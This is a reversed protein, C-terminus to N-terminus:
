FLLFFLSFNSILCTKNEKRFFINSTFDVGQTGWEQPFRYHQGYNTFEEDIHGRIYSGDVTWVQIDGREDVKKIYAPKLSAKM